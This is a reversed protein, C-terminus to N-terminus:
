INKKHKVYDLIRRYDEKTDVEGWFANNIDLVYVDQHDIMTYLTNEWWYNYEENAILMELQQKFQPLFRKSIKAIGVYECDREHRKLEKGYAVLKDGNRRFFYDGEDVRSSDALMVVDQTTALLKELADEEWYVDANGLLLDEDKLLDRAFWLSAISNTVRYFPNVIFYVDMGELEEIITEGKYGLIITVKIDHAQLMKVTHMIISEEYLPLLSKPKNTESSIRTGLGAAMLIAQM